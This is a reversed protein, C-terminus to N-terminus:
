VVEMEITQMSKKWVFTAFFVLTTHIGCLRRWQLIVIVIVSLFVVCNSFSILKALLCIVYLLWRNMCLVCLVCIVAVQVLCCAFVVCNSCLFIICDLM